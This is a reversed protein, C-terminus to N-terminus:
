FAVRRALASPYHRQEALQEAFNEVQELTLSRTIPFSLELSTHQDNTILQLKQLKDVVADAASLASSAKM